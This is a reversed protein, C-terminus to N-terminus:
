RLISRYQVKQAIRQIFAISGKPIWKEHFGKLNIPYVTGPYANDPIVATLAQKTVQPSPHVKLLEGAKAFRIYADQPRSIYTNSQNAVRQWNKSLADPAIPYSAEGKSNLVLHDGTNYSATTGSQSILTGPTKAVETEITRPLKTYLGNLRNFMLPM